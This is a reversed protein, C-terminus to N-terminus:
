TITALSYLDARSTKKQKARMGISIKTPVHRTSSEMQSACALYRIPKYM